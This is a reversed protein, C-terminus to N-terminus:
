KCLRHITQAHWDGRGSFTPIGEAKLYSAIVSFTAGKKRMTRIITLIDDKTYHTGSAYSATPKQPKSHRPVFLDDSFIKNLNNFFISISNYHRIRTEILLENQSVMKELNQILSSSTDILEPLMDHLSVLLSEMSESHDSRRDPVTRRDNQPYYHGDLNRKRDSIKKKQSSRLNRLFDSMNDGKM